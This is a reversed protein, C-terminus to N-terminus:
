TQVPFTPFSSDFTHFAVSHPKAHGSKTGVGLCEALVLFCSCFAPIPCHSHSFLKCPFTQLLRHHSAQPFSFFFYFLFSVFSLFPSFFCSHFPSPSLATHPLMELLM